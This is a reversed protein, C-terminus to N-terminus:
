KKAIVKIMPWFLSFNEALYISVKRVPKFTIYEFDLKAKFRGSTINSFGAAEHMKRMKRRTFSKEMGFRM